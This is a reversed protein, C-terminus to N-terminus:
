PIGAVVCCIAFFRRNRVALSDLEEEDDKCTNEAPQGALQQNEVDEGEGQDEEEGPALLRSELNSKSTATDM